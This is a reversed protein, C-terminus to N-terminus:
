INIFHAISAHLIGTIKTAPGTIPPKIKFYTPKRQSIYPEANIDKMYVERIYKKRFGGAVFLFDTLYM